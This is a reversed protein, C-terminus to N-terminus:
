VATQLAPHGPLGPGCGLQVDVPWDLIIIALLSFPFLSAHGKYLYFGTSYFSM